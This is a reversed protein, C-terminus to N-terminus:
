NCLLYAHGAPDIISTPSRCLAVHQLHSDTSPYHSLIPISYSTTRGQCIPTTRIQQIMAPQQGVFFALTDEPLTIHRATCKYQEPTQNYPREVGAGFRMARNERHVFGSIRKPAVGNALSLVVFRDFNQSLSRDQYEVTTSLM